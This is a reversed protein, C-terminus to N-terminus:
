KKKTSTDSKVGGCPPPNNIYIICHPLLKKLTEIENYQKLRHYYDLEEAFPTDAVWLEKLKKLKSLEVPLSNIKSKNLNLIELNSLTLIELPLTAENWTITLEKLNKLVEIEKPIHKIPSLIHLTEINKCGLISYPFYNLTSDILVFEKLNKIKDINRLGYFRNEKNDSINCDEITIEKLSDLTSLMDFTSAWNLYPQKNIEMKMLQNMKKIEIPLNKYKKRHISLYSVAGYHAIATDLNDYCGNYCSNCENEYSNKVSQENKNEQKKKNNCSYLLVVVLILVYIKKM